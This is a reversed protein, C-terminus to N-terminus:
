PTKADKGTVARDETITVEQHAAKCDETLKRARFCAGPKSHLVCTWVCNPGETPYPNTYEYEFQGQVRLTAEAVGPKERISTATGERYAQGCGGYAYGDTALHVASAVPRREV